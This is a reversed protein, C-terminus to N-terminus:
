GGVFAMSQVEEGHGFRDFAILLAIVSMHQFVRALYKIIHDSWVRLFQCMEFFDDVVLLAFCEVAFDGIQYEARNVVDLKFSYLVFEDNLHVFGLEAADECCVLLGVFEVYGGLLGVECGLGEDAHDM